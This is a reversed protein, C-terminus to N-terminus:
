FDLGQLYSISKGLSLWPDMTFDEQELFIYQLGAVKRKEFMSPFDLIGNGIETSERGEGAAMDKVHWLKFRGPFKNFYDVPQFGGYVMWYTDLQMTVLGADTRDLLINYPVIGDMMEFEFAHNHYGLQLGAQKCVDGMQNLEDSILKYDDISKRKEAPISPMVLYKMGANMTDDVTKKINEPSFSSHSSLPNLGIDMVMNRFNGPEMNYFKGDNYGATEITTFGIEKLKVLSGTLSENVLDRITYLQIGIEKKVPNAFLNTPSITSLAAAATVSKVFTRRSVM